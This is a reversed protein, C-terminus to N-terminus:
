KTLRRHKGGVAEIDVGEELLKERYATYGGEFFRAGGEGDFHLIHTALRDLFFRDHSIVLVAGGFRALAEELVRVTPLDLDNTPEDLLLLNGGTKLTKALQVRNRQGGSIQDLTKQQDNGRFGFLSVYARANMRRAGLKVEDDGGSIEEYVTNEDCLDARSQDVYCIEVTKGLHVTGEDPIEQGTLIRFLTTKGAGNPGIIGVCSGPQVEFDLNSFILREGYRKGLGEVRLVDQGLRQGEPITLQIGQDKGSLEALEARLKEFERIRAKGKARQGKPNRQIWRLERELRRKKSAEQKEADRLKKAKQELYTSYNGEYPIGKGGEMELMWGVVNDLFYRDHTIMVVTGPYDALHRELWHVTDADLHNTPEDLLLLDPQSLLVQALAVRRKEGGSLRDVAADGPPTALAHMAQEVKHDLEWADTADIATQVRDLEDLAEQMADPDLEPDALRENLEEYRRLLARVEGVAQEINGRVDLSPDLEPEQPVYGVRIGEAPQALGDFDTDVGAMIRLLTSKGSGNHGIVGIKAGPLFALTIGDLVVKRDYAKTLKRLVYVFEAM